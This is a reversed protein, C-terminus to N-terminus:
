HNSILMALLKECNLNVKTDRVSEHVRAALDHLNCSAEIALKLSSIKESM